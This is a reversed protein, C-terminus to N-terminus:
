PSAGMTGTLVSSDTRTFLTTSSASFHPTPLANGKQDPHHHALLPHEGKKLVTVSLRTDRM